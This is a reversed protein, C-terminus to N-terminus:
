ARLPISVITSASRESSVRSGTTVVRRRRASTARRAVKRAFEEPSMEEAAGTLADIRKALEPRKDDDVDRLAAGAADLHEGSVKGEELAKGLKPTEKTTEKRRLARKAKKRSSRAANALHNEPLPSHAAMYGALAVERGDCWRKIAALDAVGRVVESRDHSEDILAVARVLRVVEDVDVVGGRM